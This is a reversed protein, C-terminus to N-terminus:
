ESAKKLLKTEFVYFKLEKIATHWCVQVKNEQGNWFDIVTMLNDPNSPLFVVDGPKITGEM